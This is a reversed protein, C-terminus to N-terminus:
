TEESKGNKQKTQPLHLRRNIHENACPHPLNQSDAERQFIMIMVMM